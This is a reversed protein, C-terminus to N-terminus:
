LQDHWLVTLRQPLSSRSRGDLDPYASEAWELISPVWSPRSRARVWGYTRPESWTMGHDIDPPSLALNKTRLKEAVV